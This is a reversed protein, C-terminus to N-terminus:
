RQRKELERLLQQAQSRPGAYPMTLVRECERRVQEPQNQALFIKGKRVRSYASLEGDAEPIATVKEFAALAAEYNRLQQHFSGIQYYLRERAVREYGPERREVREAMRMYEALAAQTNGERLYTRAVELPLLYNRPYYESLKELLVRTYAYKKERNYVVALLVAAATTVLRGRTVASHLLEIGREQSGRYGALLALWKVPGPISGVAYEYLGLILDADHYSPDLRKLREHFRKAKAGAKLAAYWHKYLTFEYNAEIGYAIGLAYLATKDRPNKKLRQTGLEKSRAILKKMTEMAQPDPKPKEAKLFPNSESYLRADLQGTRYMERFLYTHALYNLFIPNEPDRALAQRFNTEASDYELNYFHNLGVLAYTWPDIADDAVTAQVGTCLLSLLLGLAISTQGSFEKRAEARM